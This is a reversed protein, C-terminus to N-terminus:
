VSERHSTMCYIHRWLLWQDVSKVFDNLVIPIRVFGNQVLFKTITNHAGDSECRLYLLLCVFIPIVPSYDSQPSFPIYRISWFDCKTEFASKNYAAM